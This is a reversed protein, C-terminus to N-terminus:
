RLSVRLNSCFIDRIRMCKESVTFYKYVWYLCVYVCSVTDILRRRTQVRQLNSYVNGYFQVFHINQIDQHLAFLKTFTTQLVLPMKCM